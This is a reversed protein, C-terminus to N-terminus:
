AMFHMKKAGQGFKYECNRYNDNRKESCKHIFFIDCINDDNKQIINNSLEEFNTQNKKKEFQCIKAM